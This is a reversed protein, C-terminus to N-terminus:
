ASAPKSLRRSYYEVFVDAVRQSFQTGANKQIEKLAQRKPMGKRYPRDSTMADYTDAVAVIQAGLPIDDGALGDPYGKGDWREHHNRILYMHERMYTIPRVIEEGKAPHTQIAKYESKALPKPSKVIGEPIGIKGVDHLISGMYLHEVEEEPVGLLRAIEVVDDAVRQSHGKTYSDKEEIAKVLALV